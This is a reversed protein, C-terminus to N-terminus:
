AENQKRIRALAAGQARRKNVTEADLGGTSAPELWIVEELAAAAARLDGRAEAADARISWARACAPALAIAARADEDADDHRGLAQRAAARGVLADVVWRVPPEGDALDDGAGVGNSRPPARARPEDDTRREGTWTGYDDGNEDFARGAFTRGGRGMLFEFTGSAGDESWEGTLKAGDAACNTLAGAGDNYTAFEFFSPDDAFALTSGYFTETWRTQAWPPMADSAEAAAIAAASPRLLAPSVQDICASFQDEAGAADGAAAAADARAKTEFADRARPSVSVGFTDDFLALLDADDLNTLMRERPYCKAVPGRGCASLCGCAGVAIASPPAGADASAQAAWAVAKALLDTAGDNRCSPSTCIKLGSGPNLAVASRIAVLALLRM